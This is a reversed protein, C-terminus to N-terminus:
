WTNIIVRKWTDTATCVYLMSSTASFAYQGKRGNSTAAAPAATRWGSLTGAFNGADTITGTCHTLKIDTMNATDINGTINEFIIESAAAGAAWNMNSNTIRYTTNRISNTVGTTSTIRYINELTVNKPGTAGVYSFFVHNNTATADYVNKISVNQADYADIIHGTSANPRLVYLGDISVAELAEFVIMADTSPTASSNVLSIDRM